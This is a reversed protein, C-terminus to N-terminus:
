LLAPLWSALPHGSTTETGLSPNPGSPAPPRGRARMGCTVRLVSFDGVEETGQKRAAGVYRLLGPGELHRLCDKACLPHWTFILDSRRSRKREEALPLVSHFSASSPGATVDLCPEWRCLHRPERGVCPWTSRGDPLVPVLIRLYPFGPLSSKTECYISLM